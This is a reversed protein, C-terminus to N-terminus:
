FVVDNLKQKELFLTECFYKELDCRSLRKAADIIELNSLPKNPLVVDDVLMNPMENDSM